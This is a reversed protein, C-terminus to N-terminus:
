KARTRAAQCRVAHRAIMLEENTRIVLVRCRSSAASIEEADRANREADSTVGLYALGECVASRVAGAREGIGGTFALTDLGGLVAALAGISKRLEYCFLEVALDAKADTARRELLERMDATTGSVGLLGSRRHVLDQLQEAGYGRTRMLYVLVGPDLDGSRTGMMFGGAPTFGMTTDVPTGDKVAAMSAGNGLHAIILRGCARAGLAELVYEYSLGHFGYRRVGEKWLKEPLPLRQAVGPMRRHFATDFCAVQPVGPFRARVVEMGRIAGPMHLPAFPILGHLSELVQETVLEPMRRDPGGHVVRHGIVIPAPLGLRAAGDCLAEFADGTGAIQRIENLLVTGDGNRLSVASRNSGINEVLGRAVLEERGAQLRYLACKLSSSGSNLALAIDPDIEHPAM